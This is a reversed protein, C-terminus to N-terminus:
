KIIVFEIRRNLEHEEDSCKTGCDFLPQTEGYGNSVLRDADIGNSILFKMASAARKKSLTMNYADRGRADTHANIEIKM